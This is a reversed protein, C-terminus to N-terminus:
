TDEETEEDDDEPEVVAAHIEDVAVKIHFLTELTLQTAETDEVYSITGGRVPLRLIDM